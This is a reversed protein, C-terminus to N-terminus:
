YKIFNIDTCCLLGVIFMDIFSCVEKTFGFQNQTVEGEDFLLDVLAEPSILDEDESSSISCNEGLFELVDDGVPQMGPIHIRKLVRKFSALSVGPYASPLDNPSPPAIYQKFLKRIYARSRVKILQSTKHEKRQNFSLKGAERQDLTLKTLYGKLQQLFMKTKYQVDRSSDEEEYAQNLSSRSPARSSRPTSTTSHPAVLHDVRMWKSEDEDNRSLLFSSFEELSIHGDGDVDYRQVLEVVQRKDVGNLFM